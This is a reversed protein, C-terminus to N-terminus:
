PGIGGVDGALRASDPERPKGIGPYGIAIKTRDGDCCDARDPVGIAGGWDGNRLAWKWDILSSM